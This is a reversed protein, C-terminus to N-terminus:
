IDLILQDNMYMCIYLYKHTHANVGVKGKVKGKFKHEGM